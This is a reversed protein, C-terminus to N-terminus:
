CAPMNAPARKSAQPQAIRSRQRGHTGAGLAVDDLSSETTIAELPRRSALPGFAGIASAAILWCAAISVFVSQYGFTSYLASIALPLLMRASGPRQCQAVADHHHIGHVAAGRCRRRENEGAAGYGPWVFVTQKAGANVVRIGLRPLQTGFLWRRGRRRRRGRLREISRFDARVQRILTDSGVDQNMAKVVPKAFGLTGLLVM